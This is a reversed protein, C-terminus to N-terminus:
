KLSMEVRSERGHRHDEPPTLSGPQVIFIRKPNIKGSKLIYNEVSLARKRALLLLDNDSIQVAALLQNKMEVLSTKRSRSKEKRPFKQRYLLRLYKRRESENLTIGNLSEGSGRQPADKLMLRKLEEELRDDQLAKRDKQPNVYGAVDVNLKPRRYLGKALVKLKKAAKGTVTSSGYDFAVYSLEEGGSGAISALFAFPSSIAKVILGRLEAEIVSGLRFQPNGLDGDVPINLEIVGERNQLLSFAFKVPLDTADPSNVKRGFTLGDIVIDNKSDLKRKDIRFKLNLFLKGRELDYGLYKGLYPNLQTMNINDFSVTLDLYPNSPNIRGAIKLPSNQELRGHLEVEAKSNDNLKLSSINGGLDTLKMHFDPKVHADLFDIAGGKLQIKGLDLSRLGLKSDGGKGAKTTKPAIARQGLIEAINLKGSPSIRAPIYFDQLKVDDIHLELPQKKFDIGLLDLTNWHVFPKQTLADTTSFDSLSAKGTYSLAFDRGASYSMEFKGDASATGGTVLLDSFKAMYPQLPSLDISRLSVKLDASVPRFDMAGDFSATGHTGFRCSLSVRGKQNAGPSIDRATLDVQDAEIHVPKSLALDEAEVTYDTLAAKNLTVHWSATRSVAGGQGASGEGGSHAGVLEYLNISGDKGRQLHLFGGDSSIDDVVIKRGSIDVSKVQAKLSPVALVEKSDKVTGLKVSGASATIDSLGLQHNQPAIIFNGTFRGVGSLSMLGIQKRYYPSYKSFSIGDLNLTGQLLLPQLSVEGNMAITEDSNGRMSLDVEAKAGRANSLHRATVKVSKWSSHFPAQTSRDSFSIAGDAVDLQDIKIKIIPKNTNESSRTNGKAGPAILSLLNLRGNEKRRFAIQPSQLLIKSLHFDLDFPKIDAIDVALKQFALLKKGGETVALVNSVTMNGSLDLSPLGKQDIVFEVKTDISVRASSVKFHLSVPIYELYKSIDFEKVVVNMVTERSSAYPKAKGEFSVSRGNIKAAFRPKVWIKAYYSLDSIFPIGANVDEMKIQEKNVRDQFIVSGDVIQINNVSYQLLNGSKKNARLLDSFNYRHHETRIINLLPNTLKLEKIVYARKFLSIAQFNLYLRDFSVFVKGGKKQPMTFGKLTVTLAYPNVNVHKIVVPRHYKSALSSELVSKLVTPVVLFGVVTYLAFLVIILLLFRTLRNMRKMKQGIKM